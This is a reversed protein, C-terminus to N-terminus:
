LLEVEFQGKVDVVELQYYLWTQEGDEYETSVKVIVVKLDDRISESLVKLVELDVDSYDDYNIDKNLNFGYSQMNEELKENPLLKVKDGVKIDTDCPSM